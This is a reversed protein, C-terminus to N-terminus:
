LQRTHQHTSTNTSHTREQSVLNSKRILHPSAHKSASPLRASMRMATVIIVRFGFGEPKVRGSVSLGRAASSPWESTFVPCMFSVPWRGPVHLNCYAARYWSRTITSGPSETTAEMEAAELAQAAM